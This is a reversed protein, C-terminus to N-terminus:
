RAAGVDTAGATMVAESQKGTSTWVKTVCLWLLAAIILVMVLTPSGATSIREITILWTPDLTTLFPATAEALATASAVAIWDLRSAPVVALLPFIMVDYALSQQPAVLLLGLALALSVRVAPLDVPGPPLRWLLIAALVVSAILGVANITSFANQVGLVRAVDQWLGNPPFTEFTASIAARGAVLYGPVLIALTGTALIALVRPSRRAAWALGVGFVAYPAKVATALGLLAGALLARRPDLRGFAILACAGAAGALVDNHGNAMVAFLMLPNVAWLLHVRVRRAPDSRTLRDLALVLALYALANWAKLWFITRAVSDGAIIAAAAETLTAIPGYRTPFNLYDPAVIAWVPDGSSKLQGLTTDYPSHGLAAIRGFGAYMIPDGNDLPPVLMLGIVAIASGLILCRPRPRWGRKTAMLAVALGIGGLLEALWLMISGLVLSHHAHLFWPPWPAAPPFAAGAAPGDLGLAVMLAISGGIAAAATRGMRRSAAALAPEAQEHRGDM